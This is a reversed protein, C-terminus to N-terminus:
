LLSVAPLPHLPTSRLEDVVTWLNLSSSVPDGPDGTAALILLNYVIWPTSIQISAASFRLSVSIHIYPEDVTGYNPM